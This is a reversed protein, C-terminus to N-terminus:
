IHTYKPWFKYRVLVSILAINAAYNFVLAWDRLHLTYILVLIEGGFWMLIFVVSLGDAHKERFSKIAQPIGCLALLISGIWAIVEM